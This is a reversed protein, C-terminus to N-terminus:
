FMLELQSSLIQIQSGLFNILTGTELITEKATKTNVLSRSRGTPYVCLMGTAQSEAIM